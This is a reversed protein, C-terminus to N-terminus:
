NAFCLNKVWGMIVVSKVKGALDPRKCLARLFPNLHKGVTLTGDPGYSHNAYGMYMLDNAVATANKCTLSLAHLEPTDLHSFIIDLFENPLRALGQPASSTSARKM